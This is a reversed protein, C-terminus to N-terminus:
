QNLRELKAVNEDHLKSLEEIKEVNDHCLGYLEKISLSTYHVDSMMKDIDKSYQKNIRRQVLVLFVLVLSLFIFCAISLDDM